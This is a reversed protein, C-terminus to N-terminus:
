LGVALHKKGPVPACCLARYIFLLRFTIQYLCEIKTPVLFCSQRRAYLTTFISRVRTRAREHSRYRKHRGTAADHMWHHHLCTSQPARPLHWSARRRGVIPVTYPTSLTVPRVPYMPLSVVDWYCALRRKDTVGKSRGNYTAEGM